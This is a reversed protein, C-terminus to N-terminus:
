YVTLQSVIDPDPTSFTGYVGKPKSSPTNFRKIIEADSFGKSIMHCLTSDAYRVEPHRQRFRFM